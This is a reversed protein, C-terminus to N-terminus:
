TDVDVSRALYYRHNESRLFPKETEVSEIHRELLRHYRIELEPSFNVRWFFSSHKYLNLLNQTDKSNEFINWLITHCRNFLVVLREKHCYHYAEIIRRRQFENANGDFYGSSLMETLARIGNYFEDKHNSSNIVANLLPVSREDQIGYSRSLALSLSNILGRHNRGRAATLLKRLERQQRTKDLINEALLMRAYLAWITASDIAILRKAIDAVEAMENLRSACFALELEAEQRQSKTLLQFNCSRLVDQAVITRGMLRLSSALQVQILAVKDRYDHQDKLLRILDESIIACSRYHEGQILLRMFTLALRLSNDKTRKSGSEIQRRVYRLILTIANQMEYDDCNASRVRMCTPAQKLNGNRWETGFYLNLALEDNSTRIDDDMLDRLHDRVSRSVILLPSTPDRDESISAVPSHYILGRDILIRAHPRMFPHVGLFHKMRELKEGQPLSSLALLLKYARKEEENNSRRLTRLKNTIQQPLNGEFSAEDTIDSNSALINPLSEIELDRLVSDLHTPVGDTYRYLKDILDPSCYRNGGVPHDQVYFATDAEDLPRLRFTKLSTLTPSRYTSIIVYIGPSYDIIVRVLHEIDHEIHKVHTGSSADDPIKLILVSRGTENLADCISNIGCHYKIHIGYLLDDRNNYDGLNLAFINSTSVKLGDAVAAIFGNEGLDWESELWIAKDQQLAEVCHFRELRRVNAHAKTDGVLYSIDAVDFKVPSLSIENRTSDGDADDSDAEKGSPHTKKTNEHSERKSRTWSLMYRNSFSGTAEDLPAIDVNRGIVRSGGVITNLKRPWNTIKRDIDSFDLECISYGQSRSAKNAGFFELGFLSSAQQRIIGLQGGHSISTQQQEHMHGFLHADFLGPPNIDNKWEGGFDPEHFWDDPQHTILLNADHRRVWLGPDNDTIAALQKIDVHLRSKFDDSSLQLWTSNLAIVGLTLDDRTFKYAADGPLIGTKEPTLHIGSKKSSELWFQYNEFLTRIYKIYDNDQTEWIHARLKPNTWYNQLTLGNADFEKPRVLDHNGPVTIVPAAASQNSQVTDHIRTIIKDFEEFEKADGSQVLDGSFVILDIHGIISMMRKLDAHLDHEFRPWLTSQGSSGVHIDSVHIWRFKNNLM